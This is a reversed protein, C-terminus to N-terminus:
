LEQYGKEVTRIAVPIGYEKVKNAIITLDDLPVTTFAQRYADKVGDSPIYQQIVYFSRHEGSFGADELMEAVAMLDEIELAPPAYTTRFEVRGEDRSRECLFEISKKVQDINVPKGVVDAYHEFSAKVDMAIRTLYPSIAQVLKPNTGNTDVGLVDFKGQMAKVFDLLAPQLLPEGGTFIVGDILFNESLRGVLEDVTVKKSNEGKPPILESNHCFHCDFNCGQLYVISVSKGPEDVMSVSKIGSVNLTNVTNYVEM